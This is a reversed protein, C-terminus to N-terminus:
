TRAALLRTEYDDIYKAVPWAAGTVELEATVRNVIYPPAQPRDRDGLRGYFMVWGWPREITLEDFVYYRDASAADAHNLEREVIRRAAQRSIM